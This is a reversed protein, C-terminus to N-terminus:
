IWDEAQVIQFAAAKKLRNQVAYAVGEGEPCRAYVKCVAPDDLQRLAIFGALQQDCYALYLRGFPPGYKQDLQLLEEEYNQLTLFDRYSSDCDLILKTFEGFLERVQDARDFGPVIQVTM